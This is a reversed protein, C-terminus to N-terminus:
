QWNRPATVSHLTLLQETKEDSLVARFRVEMKLVLEGTGARHASVTRHIEPFPASRAFYRAVEDFRPGGGGLFAGPDKVLIVDAGPPIPPLDAPELSALGELVTQAHLTADLLRRASHSTRHSATFMAVIPGIAIALITIGLLVEILSFAERSSRSM